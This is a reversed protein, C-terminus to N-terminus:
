SVISSGTAITSKFGSANVRELAVFIKNGLVPTGFRAEYASFLDLPSTQALTGAGMLRLDKEFTVGASRQPGAFALITESAGLPTPTWAVSFTGSNLTIAGVAVADPTSYSPAAGLTTQGANTLNTNVSIFAEQGTLNYTQGLSDNRQMQLGLSKWGAQATSTLGRWATAFAALTARVGTQFTTRPNVPTARTRFYQGFRNRSSTLGQYSGSQPQNLFKM